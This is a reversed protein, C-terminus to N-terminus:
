SNAYDLKVGARARGHAVKGLNGLTGLLIFIQEQDNKKFGGLTPQIIKPAEELLQWFLM